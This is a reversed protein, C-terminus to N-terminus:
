ARAQAHEGVRDRWEQWFTAWGARDYDDDIPAKPSCASYFDEIQKVFGLVATRWVAESVWEDHRGATLHVNGEAHRVSVDIGRPCGMCLVNFRGEQPWVSFACCPFLFNTEAVSDEPTHDFSLTRLLYLGAGSVTWESDDPAIFATQGVRFEVKGHACQDHPDDAAGNVWCLDHAALTIM